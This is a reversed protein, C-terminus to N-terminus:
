IAWVQIEPKNKNPDLLQRLYPKAKPIQGHNVYFLALLQVPSDEEPKAKLNALFQKEADEIHGLAEFCQGLTVYDKLATLKTEAEKLIAEAEEIGQAGYYSVLSLWVAPDKDDAKKAFLLLAEVERAPAGSDYLQKAFWLLEAADKTDAEVSRLALKALKRAEEKDGKKLAVVSAMKTLQPSLVGDKAQYDSLLREAEENRNAGVLLQITRQVVEPRREGLDIARQYEEIARDTMRQGEQSPKSKESDGRLMSAQRDSIYAQLLVLRSWNARRSAAEVLLKRAQDLTDQIDKKNEQSLSILRTAEAYRWIVGEDKELDKIEALIEKVREEDKELMALDFLRLRTMLAQSRGVAIDKKSIETWLRKAEAVQGARERIEALGALLGIQESPSFQDLGMELEALSMEAFAKKDKSALNRLWHGGFALRLAVGDGTQKRAEKLLALAADAQGQREVVNVLTLWYDLDNPFLDRSRDVLQRAEERLQAAKEKESPPFFYSQAVKLNVRERVLDALRQGTQEANDLRSELDQWFKSKTGEKALRNVESRLNLRFILRVMDIEFSPDQVALLRFSALADALQGNKEQAKALQVLAIPLQGNQQALRKSTDLLRDKEELREYCEALMLDAEAPISAFDPAGALVDLRTRVGELLNSALIWDRNRLAIRAKLFSVLASAPTKELAQLDTEAQEPHGSDILLQAVRWRMFPNNPEADVYRRMWGVAKDPNKEAFELRALVRYFSTDKPYLEVGKELFTRASNSDGADFAQEASALLVSENDPALERAMKLDDLNQQNWAKDTVDKPSAFAKRYQIRNLYADHAGPNNAVMDFISQDAEQKAKASPSPDKRESEKDNTKELELFRERVFQNL